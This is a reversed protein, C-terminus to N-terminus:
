TTGPHLHSASTGVSGTCPLAISLKLTDETIQITPCVVGYVSSRLIYRIDEQHVYKQPSESYGVQSCITITNARNEGHVLVKKYPKLIHKIYTKRLLAGGLFIFVTDNPFELSSSCWAWLDYGQRCM